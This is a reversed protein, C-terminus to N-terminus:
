NLGPWSQLQKPDKSPQQFECLLVSSTPMSLRAKLPCAMQLRSQVFPIALGLERILHKIALINVLSQSGWCLGRIQGLVFHKITVEAALSAANVFFAHRRHMCISGGWLLHGSCSGAVHDISTVHESACRATWQHWNQSAQVNLHM